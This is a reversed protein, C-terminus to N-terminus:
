KLADKIASVSKRYEDLVVTLATDANTNFVQKSLSIVYEYLKDAFDRDFPSISVGVNYKECLEGMFSGPMCVQPIRFILGDYYKNGMALMTNSDHYINHIVDTVKAFEYRETAVYEGHFHVNTAYNEYVYDKLAKAINQERGYYHLEFREDNALRDILAKNVEEHRIQGWFAVRVKRSEKKEYDRHNLSDELINHTTYIKDNYKQPFFQRFADSSTLTICSHKILCGLAKRFLFLKEFTSDRYDLIYRKSYKRVLIDLLLLGPLSHLVVVRDYTHNRLIDLAFARYKIFSRIKSSKPVEDEQYCRFEYLHLDAYQSVDEDKLDRNWYLVSIENSNRDINDLYLNLYPMIRLKAFGVILIKM